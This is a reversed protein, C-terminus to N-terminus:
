AVPNPETSAASSTFWQFLPLCAPNERIAFTAPTETIAPVDVVAVSVMIPVPPNAAGAFNLLRPMGDPTATFNELGVIVVEAGTVTVNMAAAFLLAPFERMVMLAAPPPSLRDVTIVRVTGAGVKETVGLTVLALRVAPPLVESVIDAATAPPNLDAILKEADPIGASTVAVKEGGRIAEGPLPLLVNLSLADGFAFAAATVSLTFALPPGIVRVSASM